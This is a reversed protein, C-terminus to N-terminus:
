AGAEASRALISRARLRVPEDVMAGDVAAAGDGSALVKRAWAIEAPDPAFGARVPEIQRPHICLKGSFGLQSPSLMPSTTVGPQLPEPARTAKTRGIALEDPMLPRAGENGLVQKKRAAARLQQREREDADQPWNPVNTVQQSTEPPPLDIKPPVVLPSRERYDIGRNEMNTAGLGTMLSHIIGEEFTMEDDEQAQAASVAFLGIGAATLAIRAALSLRTRHSRFRGHFGVHPAAMPPKFTHM